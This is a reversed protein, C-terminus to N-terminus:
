FAQKLHLVWINEKTIYVNMHRQLSKERESEVINGTPIPNYKEQFSYFDGSDKGSGGTGVVDEGLKVGRWGM